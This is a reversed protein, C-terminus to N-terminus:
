LGKQGRSVARALMTSIQSESKRFSELDNAQVNFIITPSQAAPEASSVGLRGDSGRKLPLIAEPGAEGMVGFRNGFTFYEPSSVVGGRAFPVVKNGTFVGGHAFGVPSAASSGILGSAVSDIFKGFLNELPQLARSLALDAFRRTLNKLFDDLGKGSRVSSAITSSFVRGFDRTSDKLADMSAVFQSTDTRVDIEISERNM